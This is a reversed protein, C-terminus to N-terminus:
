RQCKDLLGEFKAKMEPGGLDPHLVKLLTIIKAAQEPNGLRYHLNALNYKARFWRPSREPSKKEIDRWRKLAAEQTARDDSELLLEAYAEQIEGDRPHAEALVRYAERAAVTRGADALAGAYLRTLQQEETKALSQESQGLLEITRLQLEALERRVEPPADDAIRALGDLMTLLADPPGASLRELAETAEARKGQGALSFVLLARADSRWDEPADAASNLAATLLSEARAYGSTTHTLLLRATSLVAQRQVPSWREPLRGDPGAVLSEFWEAAVKAIAEADQGAAKRAALWARYCRDAGAVADAFNDAGPSVARYAAIAGQWDGQHERLRALQARAEDATSQRPWNQLHENLLAVYHDQAGPSKVRVLQAAHYVALLHANPAKAHQPSALALRRFRGLAQDHRERRHEIAAATYGLDFAQDAMGHTAAEERARDYAAVAEDLNGSRYASEAARTLMDVSGGPLGRVSGALRMEARRGWYPGHLSDITRVLSTAREQWAKAQADNKTEVAARWARLYAALAADDFEPLALGDISRGSGVVALAERLQDSALLLLVQEARARLRVDPPVEATLLAALYREAKQYDALQRCCRALALRSPYALPDAVDLGALFEFIRVAKLLSNSRDPSDAPYSLAQNRYTRALQYQITNRLSQLREPSLRDDDTPASAPRRIREEVAADLSALRSAASRLPQRAAEFRAPDGGLLEAEQRALEGRDLLTLAGQFQVLLLRPNGPNEEVFRRPVEEARQWLPPRQEPPSSAAQEALCRALEITLEAREVDTQEPEALRNVCHREALQYLGRERLGALFRQDTSLDDAAASAALLTVVLALTARVSGRTGSNPQGATGTLRWGDM